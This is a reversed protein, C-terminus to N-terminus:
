TVERWMVTLEALPQMAKGGIAAPEAIPAQVDQQPSDRGRSDLWYLERGNCDYEPSGALVADGRGSRRRRHSATECAVFKAKRSPLGFPIKAIVTALNTRALAGSWSLEAQVDGAPIAPM